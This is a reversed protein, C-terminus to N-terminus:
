SLEKEVFERFEEEKVTDYMKQKTIESLFNIDKEIKEASVYLFVLMSKSLDYKYISYYKKLINYLNNYDKDNYYKIIMVLYITKLKNFKNLFIKGLIINKNKELQEIVKTYALVQYYKYSFIKEIDIRNGLIIENIWKFLIYIDYNFLKYNVKRKNSKFIYLENNNIKDKCFNIFESPCLSINAEQLHYKLLEQRFELSKKNYYKINKLIIANDTNIFSNNIIKRFKITRIIFIIFSIVVIIFVLITFLHLIELLNYFLNNELKNSLLKFDEIKQLIDGLGVKESKIEIMKNFYNKILNKRSILIVEDVLFVILLIRLFIRQIECYFKKLMSIEYYNKIEM